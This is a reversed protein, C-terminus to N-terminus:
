EQEAENQVEEMVIMMAYINVEITNKARRLKTKLARNNSKKVEEIEFAKLKAEFLAELAKTKAIDEQRAIRAAESEEIKRKREETNQDIKEEGVTEMLEKYDPNESGGYAIKAVSLEQKTESGDDETIVLIAKVIGEEKNEWFANDLWKRSM